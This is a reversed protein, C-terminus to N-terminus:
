DRGAFRGPCLPRCLQCRGHQLQWRDRYPRWVPNLFRMPLSKTNHLAGRISGTGGLRLIAENGYRAKIGSLREAVLDLAQPWTTEEFRSSGRPGTRILPRKIETLRTYPGLWKAGKKVAWVDNARWRPQKYYGNNPWGRRSGVVPVWWYLGSQMFGTDNQDVHSM